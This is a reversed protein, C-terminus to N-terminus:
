YLPENAIEKELIALKDNSWMDVGFWADRAKVTEGYNVLCSNLYNAILIDPTDSDNEKSYSNVLQGLATLFSPREQHENEEPLPSNKYIEAQRDVLEKLIEDPHKTTHTTTSILAMAAILLRGEIRNTDICSLNEM